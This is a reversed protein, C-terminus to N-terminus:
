GQVFFCSYRLLALSAAVLPFGHCLTPHLNMTLHCIPLPPPTGDGPSPSNCGYGIGSGDIIAWERRHIIEIQRHCSDAQESESSCCNCTRSRTKNIGGCTRIRYGCIGRNDICAEGRLEETRELFGYRVGVRSHLNGYLLLSSCCDYSTM